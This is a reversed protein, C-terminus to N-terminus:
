QRRIRFNELNTYQIEHEEPHEINIHSPVNLGLGRLEGRNMVRLRAGPRVHFEQEKDRVTDVLADNNRDSHVLRMRPIVQRPDDVVAAIVPTTSIEAFNAAVSPRTTWHIGTTDPLMGMEPKEVGHYLITGRRPLQGRRPPGNYGAGNERYM